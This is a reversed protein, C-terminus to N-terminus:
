EGEFKIILKDWDGESALTFMEAFLPRTKSIWELHAIGSKGRNLDSLSDAWQYNWDAKKLAQYYEKPSYHLCFTTGHHNRYMAPTDLERYGNQWIFQSVEWPEMTVNKDKFQLRM